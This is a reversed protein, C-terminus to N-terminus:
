EIIKLKQAVQTALPGLVAECGAVFKSNGTLEVTRAALRVCDSQFGTNGSFVIDDKDFNIIGTLSSSSTGNFQMTRTSGTKDGWILVGPFVQTQGTAPSAGPLPASLNISGNGNMTLDTTGKFIITVGEGSLNGGANITIPADKFFYLGPSLKLKGHIKVEGTYCGPLLTITDNKRVTPMPLCILPTAPQTLGDLPGKLEAKNTMPASCELTAKDAGSVGGVSYLCTAALAASGGMAVASSSSSNSAGLCSGLDVSANGWAKLAQSATKDLALVCAEGSSFSVVTRATINVSGSWVAKTFYKDGPMAMDVTLNDNGSAPLTVSLTLKSVDYGSKGMASKLTTEIMSKSEGRRYLNAASIAAGDSTTRLKSKQALWLSAETGM